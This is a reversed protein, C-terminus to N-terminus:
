KPPPKSTCIMKLWSAGFTGPGAEQFLTPSVAHSKSAGPNGTGYEGSYLTTQVTASTQEACDFYLLFALSKDTSYMGGVNKADKCSQMFWAKRYKGKMSYTSADIFFECGNGDQGVTSWNPKPRATEARSPAPSTADDHTLQTCGRATAQALTLDFEYSVPPGVASPSSCATTTTTPACPCSWLAASAPTGVCWFCLILLLARGRSPRDKRDM